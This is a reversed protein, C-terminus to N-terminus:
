LSSNASERLSLSAITEIHPTHPAMDVMALTKLAYRPEASMIRQVDRAQTSPNCSVYVIRKAGCKAIWDTLSADLGPRNPDVVVIDPHPVATGIDAAIKALDGQFFKANRVQNNTANEKADMVSQELLEYGYVLKCENALYLGISGTGCFLDLLVEDRRGSFCCARHIEDYLKRMQLTNPQFFSNASCKLRLHKLDYTLHGEGALVITDMKSKVAGREHVTNVVGCMPFQDFLRESLEKLLDPERSSTVFNLLYKQNGSRIVVHELYRKKHRTYRSGVGSRLIDARVESWIRNATDDQLLCTEVDLIDSSSGPLHFGMNPNEHLLGSLSFEVKNRYGYARDNATNLDRVEPIEEIRAIRQFADKVQERKQQKQMEHDLNQMM